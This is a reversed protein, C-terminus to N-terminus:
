YEIGKRADVGCDFYHKVKKMDTVLDALLVLERPASRGTIVVEVNPHSSQIIRAIEDVTFMRYYSCLLVEDMVVLDFYGSRLVEKCCELGKRASRIDEEGPEGVIFKGTGFQELIFRDFFSELGQESTKVGKFFQAFYVSGGALLMRMSLGLAATTKGKGTGCYIQVYGRRLISEPKGANSNALLFTGPKNTKSFSVSQNIM